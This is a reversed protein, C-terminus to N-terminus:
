VIVKFDLRGRARPSGLYNITIEDSMAIAKVAYLEIYKSGRVTRCRWNANAKYSHNYLSGAGLAIVAEETDPWYYAWENVLLPGPEKRMQWFNKYVVLM